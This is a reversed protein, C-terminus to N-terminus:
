LMTRLFEERLSFFQCHALTSVKIDEFHGYFEMMPAGTMWVSSLNQQCGVTVTIPELIMVKAVVKVTDLEEDLAKGHVARDASGEEDAKPAHLALLCRSLNLDTLRILYDSYM